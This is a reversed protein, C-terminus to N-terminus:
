EAIQVTESRGLNDNNHCPHFARQGTSDASQHCAGHDRHGGTDAISGTEVSERGVQSHQVTALAVDRHHIDVISEASAIYGAQDIALASPQESASTIPAGRNSATSLKKRRCRMPSRLNWWAPCNPM